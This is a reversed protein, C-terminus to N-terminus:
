EEIWVFGLNWTMWTVSFCLCVWNFYANSFFGWLVGSEWDDRLGFLVWELDGLCFWYM